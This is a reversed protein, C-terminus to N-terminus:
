LPKPWTDIEAQLRKTENGEKKIHERWLKADEHTSGIWIQGQAKMHARWLKADVKMKARYKVALRKKKIKRITVKRRADRAKQRCKNCMMGQGQNKVTVEPYDYWPRSEKCRPCRRTPSPISQAAYRLTENARAIVAKERAAKDKDRRIKNTENRCERCQSRRGGKSDGRKSFEDLPKSIGCKSCMKLDITNEMDCCIIM